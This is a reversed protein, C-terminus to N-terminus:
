VTRTLKGDKAIYDLPGAQNIPKQVHGGVHITLAAPNGLRLWLTKGHFVKVAGQALTSSYLVTGTSSDKRVELWCAGTAANVRVENSATTATHTPSPSTSQKPTASPSTSGIGLVSPKTIPTPTGGGEDIGLVYIVGLVLLCIVAVFVLTNRGRHSRPAGLM